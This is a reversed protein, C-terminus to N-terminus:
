VPIQYTNRLAPRCRLANPSQTSGHQYGVDEQAGGVGGSHLRNHTLLAANEVPLTPDMQLEFHQMM